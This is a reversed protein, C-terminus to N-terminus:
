VKLSENLDKHYKSGILFVNFALAIAGFGYACVFSRGILSNTFHPKLSTTICM